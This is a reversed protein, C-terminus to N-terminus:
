RAVGNTGWGGAWINTMAKSVKMVNNESEVERWEDSKRFTKVTRSVERERTISEPKGDWVLSLTKCEIITTTVYRETAPVTWGGIFGNNVTLTVAMNTTYNGSPSHGNDTEVTNTVLCTSVANTPNFKLTRGDTWLVRLSQDRMSVDVSWTEASIAYFSNPVTVPSLHPQGMASGALLLLALFSMVLFSTMKGAAWNRQCGIAQTSFQATQRGGTFAITISQRTM